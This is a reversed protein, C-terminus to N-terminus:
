RECQFRCKKLMSSSASEFLVFRHLLFIVQLFLVLEGIRGGGPVAEQLCLPLLAIEENMDVEGEVCRQDERAAVTKM